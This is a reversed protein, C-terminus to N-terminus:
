DVLHLKNKIRYILDYIYLPKATFSVDRVKANLIEFSNNNKKIYVTFIGINSNNILIDINTLYLQMGNKNQTLTDYPKKKIEVKLKISDSIYKSIIDIQEDSFTTSEEYFPIFKYESTNPFPQSEVKQLLLNIDRFFDSNDTQKNEIFSSFSNLPVVNFSEIYNDVYYYLLYLVLIFLYLYM